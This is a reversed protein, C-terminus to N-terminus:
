LALYKEGVASVENENLDGVQNGRDQHVPILKRSTPRFRLPHAFLEAFQEPTMGDVVRAVFVTRLEDPLEDISRERVDRIVGDAM